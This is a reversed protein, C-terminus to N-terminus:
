NKGYVTYLSPRSSPERYTYGFDRLRWRTSTYTMFAVEEMSTSPFQVLGFFEFNNLLNREFIM